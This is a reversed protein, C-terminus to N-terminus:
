RGRQTNGRPNCRARRYLRITRAPPRFSPEIAPGPWSHAAFSGKIGAIVTEPKVIILAPDIQVEPLASTGIQVKPM